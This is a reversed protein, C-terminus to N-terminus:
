PSSVGPGTETDLLVDQLFIEYTPSKNKSKELQEPIQQTGPCCNHWSVWLIEFGNEKYSIWYRSKMINWSLMDQQINLRGVPQKAMFSTSNLTVALVKKKKNPIEDSSVLFTNM